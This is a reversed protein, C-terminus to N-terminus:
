ADGSIAGISLMEELYENLDNRITDAPADFEAYVADVLENITMPTALKEWIFAGVEDLTYFGDMDAVNLRVPVLIMEEIVKRFIYEPNRQLKVTELVM